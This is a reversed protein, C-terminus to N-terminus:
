RVAATLDAPTMAYVEVTGSHMHPVPQFLASGVTITWGAVLVLLISDFSNILQEKFNSM